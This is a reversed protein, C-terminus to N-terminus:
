HLLRQYDDIFYEIITSPAINLTRTLPKSDLSQGINHKSKIISRAEPMLCLMPSSTGQRVTSAM